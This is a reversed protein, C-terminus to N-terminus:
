PLLSALSFNTFSKAAAQTLTIFASRNSKFYYFLLLADLRECITLRWTYFPSESVTVMKTAISTKLTYSEREIRM